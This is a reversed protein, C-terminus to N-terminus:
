SNIEYRISLLVKILKTISRYYRFNRYLLYVIWILIQINLKGESYIQYIDRIVLSEPTHSFLNFNKLTFLSKERNSWNENNYNLYSIDVTYIKNKGKDLVAWIMCQDYMPHRWLIQKSKAFKEAALYLEYSSIASYHCLNPGRNLQYQWFDYLRNPKLKNFIKKNFNKKNPVGLIIKKTKLKPILNVYEILLKHDVFDDDSLTLTFDSNIQEFIFVYDEQHSRERSSFFNYYKKDIKKLYIKKRIGKKQRDLIIFNLKIKEGLLHINSIIKNIDNICKQKQYACLWIINIVLM